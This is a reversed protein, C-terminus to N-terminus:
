QLKLSVTQLMHLYSEWNVTGNPGVPNIVPGIIGGKGIAAWITVREPHLEHVDIFDEPKSDDWYRFNQNNVFGSLHFHSEDSFM